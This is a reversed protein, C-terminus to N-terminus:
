QFLNALYSGQAMISEIGALSPPLAGLVTLVRNLRTASPQEALADTERTLEVEQTADMQWNPAAQRVAAVFKLLTEPDIGQNQTARSHPGFSVAGANGYHNYTDGSRQEEMGQIVSRGSELLARGKSTIGLRVSGTISLTYTIYRKKLLLYFTSRWEAVSVKEGLLLFTQRKGNVYTYDDNELKELLYKRWYKADSSSLLGYYILVLLVRTCFQSRIQPDEVAEFLRHVEAVGSKTLRISSYSGRKLLGRRVLVEVADVDDYYSVFVRRADKSKISSSGSMNLTELELHGFRRPDSVELIRKYIQVLAYSLGSERVPDISM